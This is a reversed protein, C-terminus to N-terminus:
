FLYFISAKRYLASSVSLYCLRTESANLFISSFSKRWQCFSQMKSANHKCFIGDRQRLNRIQTEHLSAYTQDRLQPRWPKNRFIPIYQFTNEWKGSRSKCHAKPLLPNSASSGAKLSGMNAFHSASGFLSKKSMTTSDMEPFELCRPEQSYWSQMITADHGDKRQLQLFFGTVHLSASPKTVSNHDGPSTSSYESRRHNWTVVAFCHITKSISSKVVTPPFHPQWGKLQGHECFTIVTPEM